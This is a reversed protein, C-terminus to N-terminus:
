QVADNVARFRLVHLAQLNRATFTTRWQLRTTVLVYSYM